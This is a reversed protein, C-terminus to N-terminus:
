GESPRQSTDCRYEGLTKNTKQKVPTTDLVNPCHLKSVIKPMM